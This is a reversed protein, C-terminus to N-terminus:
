YSVIKSDRGLLWFHKELLIQGHDRYRHEHCLRSEPDRQHHLLRELCDFSGLLHRVIQKRLARLHVALPFLHADFAVALVLSSAANLLSIQVRYSYKPDVSVVFCCSAIQPTLIAMERLDEDLM